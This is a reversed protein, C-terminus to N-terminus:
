NVSNGSGVIQTVKNNDGSFNATQSTGALSESSSAWQKLFAALDPDAQLAKRLQMELAGQAAKDDPQKSLDDMAEKVGGHNVRKKLRDLAAGVASKGIEEAGKELAKQLLPVVLSVASTAVAALTAPDLMSLEKRNVCPIFPKLLEAEPRAAVSRHLQLCAEIMADMSSQYAPSHQLVSSALVQAAEHVLGQRDDISVLDRSRSEGLVLLRVFFIPVVIPRQIALDHYLDTAERAALAAQEFRGLDGLLNALHHLGIALQPHVLVPRDFALERLVEVCEQIAILAREHHGLQDLMYALSQLSGALIPRMRNSQHTADERILELGEEAARLGREHQGLEFLVAGLGSLGAALEESSVWHQASTERSLDVAEQAASLAQELERRELRIAGLLQLADILIRRSAVSAQDALARAIVIAEQVALLAPEVMAAMCFVQALIRLSGGLSPRFVNPRQIDLKRYLEVADRAAALAPQWQGLQLLSIALAFHSAALHHSYLDPKQAALERYLDNSKKAAVLTSDYQDVSGICTALFKIREALHPQVPHPGQADHDRQKEAAEHVAAQAPGVQDLALHVLALECLSAVLEPLFVSPEQVLLERGIDVREQAALVAQELQGVSFLASTLVGLSVALDLSLEAPPWAGAERCHDVAEQAVILAREYQGTWGLAFALTCLAQVREDRVATDQIDLLEILRQAIQVRLDALAVSEIPLSALLERMVQAESWHAHAIVRLWEVPAKERPAFDQACRVVCQTVSSGFHSHCRLVAQQGSEQRFTALILAEGILDPWGPAIGDRRRLGQEMLDAVAAVDGSPRGIAQKEKDAFEEFQRRKMGQALMVCAALHQVLEPNLSHSKALEHLRSAERTALAAALDTRGLTLAKAHGVRVMELAAMMLFLPDGGSSIQMLRARLNSDDLLWDPTIGASAQTVVDSLLALRDEGSALPALEVPELPDLLARKSLAGWGGSAFVTTWWGTEVSASRELLLLRLPNPPPRHRDALEGFWQGLLRAHQAAYDVVILTPKRWGWASLNQAGFFRALEDNAVFGADWVGDATVQECLELALRTKGSGGGGTLVRAQIPRPNSMFAQLSALEGERGRLETARSYPSLRDLDQLIQRRAWYRTLTLYPHGLEVHNGTGVIQVITNGAGGTEATQHMLQGLM